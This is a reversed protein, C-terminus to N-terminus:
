SKPPETEGRALRKLREVLVNRADRYAPQSNNYPSRHGGGLGLLGTHRALFELAAHKDHLRVRGPKGNGPPVVRAVAGGQWDSAPMRLEFRNPGWDVFDRMDAFAIKSYELLVRDATIRRNETREAEAKAIAAAIDPRRSLASANQQRSKGGYGARRAAASTNCDVLYEAVFRRERENM